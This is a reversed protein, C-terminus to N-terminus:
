DAFWVETFSFESRFTETYIHNEPSFSLLQGFLKNRFFTSLIWSNHQYRNSAINLDVLVMDIDELHPVNERTKNKAIKGETIGFLHM